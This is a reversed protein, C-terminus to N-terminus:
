ESVGKALDVEQRDIPRAHAALRPLAVLDGLLEEREYRRLAEREFLERAREINGRNQQEYIAWAQLLFINGPCAKTGKEFAIQAKTTIQHKESPEHAAAVGQGGERRAELLAIALHSHSDKPNKLLIKELLNTAEGWRGQREMTKATQFMIRISNRNDHYQKSFPNRNSKGDKGALNIVTTASVSNIAMASQKKQQSKSNTYSSKQQRGEPSSTSFHLSADRSLPRPSIRSRIKYFSVFADVFPMCSIVSLVLLM